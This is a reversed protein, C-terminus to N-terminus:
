ALVAIDQDFGNGLLTVLNASDSAKICIMRALPLDANLSGNLEFFPFSMFVFSALQSRMTRTSAPKTKTPKAAVCVTPQHPHSPMMGKAVPAM